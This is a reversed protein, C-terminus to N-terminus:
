GSTNEEWIRRGIKEVSGREDWYSKNNRKKFNCRACKWVYGRLKSKSQELETFCRPCRPPIKVRLQSPNTCGQYPMGVNWRVGAYDIETTTIYNKYDNFSSTFFGGYKKQRLGYTLGFVGLIIIVIIIAFNESENLLLFGEFNSATPLNGMILAVFLGGITTGVITEILKFSLM